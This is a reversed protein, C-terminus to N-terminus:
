TPIPSRHFFLLASGPPEEDCSAALNENSDKVSHLTHGPNPPTLIQGSSPADVHNSMSPQFQPISQSSSETHIAGVPELSDFTVSLYHEDTPKHPIDLM